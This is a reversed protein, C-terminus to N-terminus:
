NFRSKYHQGKGRHSWFCLRQSGFAALVSPTRTHTPTCLPFFLALQWLMIKEMEKKCHEDMDYWKRFSQRRGMYWGCKQKSQSVASCLSKQVFFFCTGCQGGDWNLLSSRSFGNFAFHSSEWWLRKMFVYFVPMCSTACSFMTVFIYVHWKQTLFFFDTSFFPLEQKKCVLSSSVTFCSNKFFFFSLSFNDNVDTHTYRRGQPFLYVFFLLYCRGPRGQTQNLVPFYRHRIQMEAGSWCDCDLCLLRPTKACHM